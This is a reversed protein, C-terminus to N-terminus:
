ATVLRETVRSLNRNGLIKDAQLLPADPLFTQSRESILSGNKNKCSDITSEKKIASYYEM